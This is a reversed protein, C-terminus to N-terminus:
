IFLGFLLCALAIIPAPIRTFRLLLFTSLITTLELYGLTTGQVVDLLVIDLTLFVTSAIM